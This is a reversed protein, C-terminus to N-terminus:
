RPGLNQTYKIIGQSKTKCLQGILTRDNCVFTPQNYCSSIRKSGSVFSDLSKRQFEFLSKRSMPKAIQRSIFFYLDNFAIDVSM